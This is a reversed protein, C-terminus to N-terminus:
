SRYAPEDASSIGPLPTIVFICRGDGSSYCREEVV